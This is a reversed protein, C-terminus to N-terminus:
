FLSGQIPEPNNGDGPFIFGSRGAGVVWGEEREADRIQESSMWDPPEFLWALEQRTDLEHFWDVTARVQAQDKIQLSPDLMSGLLGPWIEVHVIRTAEDALFKENFGLEFPWVKSVAALQDDFRLSRLRPIGVLSQGGVSATGLLKWIPQARREHLECWRRGRLRVGSGTQYPFGPSKTSVSGLQKKIPRGWLPGVENTGRVTDNIAAAVEFRNNHNDSNDSIETSLLSWIYNWPHEGYYGLAEAFGSPFGFDFDYGILVRHGNAAFDRLVERLYVTCEQRTRFYAETQVEAEPRKLAVWIADASPKPASPVSSASWDVAVYVDFSPKM